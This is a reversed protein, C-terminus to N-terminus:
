NFKKMVGVEIIRDISPVKSISFLAEHGITLQNIKFLSEYSHRKEEWTANNSYLGQGM